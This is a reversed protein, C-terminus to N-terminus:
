MGLLRSFQLSLPADLFVWYRLLQTIGRLNFSSLVHRQALAVDLHWLISSVSDLRTEDHQFVDSQFVCGGQVVPLAFGPFPLSEVDDQCMNQKRDTNLIMRKVVAVKQHYAFCRFRVLCELIALIRTPSPAVVHEAELICLIKFLLIGKLKANQLNGHGIHLAVELIKDLNSAFSIQAEIREILEDLLRKLADIFLLKSTVAPALNKGATSPASHGSSCHSNLRISLISVLQALHELDYFAIRQRLSELSATVREPETTSRSLLSEIVVPSIFREASRKSDATKAPVCSIGRQIVTLAAHCFTGTESTRFRLGSTPQFAQQYARQFAPEFANSRWYCFVQSGAVRGM